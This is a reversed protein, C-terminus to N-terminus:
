GIKTQTPSLNISIQCSIHLVSGYQMLAEVFKYLFLCWVSPFQKYRCVTSIVSQIFNHSKSMRRDWESEEQEKEWMQTVRRNIRSSHNMHTSIQDDINRKKLKMDSNNDSRLIWCFYAPWCNNTNSPENLGRQLIQLNMYTHRM